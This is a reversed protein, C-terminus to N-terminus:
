NWWGTIEILKDDCEKILDMVTNTDNELGDSWIDNYLCLMFMEKAAKLMGRTAVLASNVDDRTADSENAMSLTIRANAIIMVAVDQANIATTQTINM